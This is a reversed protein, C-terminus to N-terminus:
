GLDELMKQLIETNENSIIVNDCKVLVNNQYTISVELGVLEVDRPLDEGKLNLVDSSPRECKVEIKNFRNGPLVVELGYTDFKDTSKGDEWKKKERPLSVLKVINSNCGLLAQELGLSALENAKM